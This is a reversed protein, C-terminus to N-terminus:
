GATKAAAVSKAVKGGETPIIVCVHGILTAGVSHASEREGAAIQLRDPDFGDGVKAIM